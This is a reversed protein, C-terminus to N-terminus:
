RTRENNVESPAFGCDEEAGSDEDESNKKTNTKAEDLAAVAGVAEDKLAKKSEEEEHEQKTEPEPPPAVIPVAHSRVVKKAAANEMRNRCWKQFGKGKDPGRPGRVVNSAMPMGGSIFDGQAGGAGMQGSSYRRVMWHPQPGATAFPVGMQIEIPGPHIFSPRSMRRMPPGQHPHPHYTPANPNLSFEVKKQDEEQIPSITAFKMNHMLSIRRRPAVVVESAGSAGPLQHFGAHSYRRQPAQQQPANIKNPAGSKRQQDQQHQTDKKKTKVPAATLEMVTLKTDDVINLDKVAKLAFETKEFEVVACVKNQGMIEPHKNAFPKVDAPVPNGPRLIRILLIEGCPSFLEAISEITVPKDEPLNCVVVTRSPTTEDHEPLPDLRRVKTKPENVELKKSKKEIAFAVQRWDKTLHKVRKFSSILKLSVFGEKNRKVHKLLFKDKTINADSFYFEVQEVIQECLEDSPEEFPAEEKVEDLVAQQQQEEETISTASIASVSSIKRSGASGSSFDSIGSDVSDKRNNYGYKASRAPPPGGLYTHHHPHHHHGGSHGSPDFYIPGDSPYMFVEQNSYPMPYAYIAPFQSYYAM